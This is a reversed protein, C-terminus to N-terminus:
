RSVDSIEGLVLWFRSSGRRGVPPVHHPRGPAPHPAGVGGAAARTGGCGAGNAVSFASKRGVEM